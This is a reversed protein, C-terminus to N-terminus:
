NHYSFLLLCRVQLSKESAARAAEQKARESAIYEARVEYQRKQDDSLKKWEIGVIKSVEGFGSDPNEHMIRKRIEASFLIYGSKSKATLKPQAALWNSMVGSM